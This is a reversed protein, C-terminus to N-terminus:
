YIATIKTKNSICLDSPCDFILTDCTYSKAIIDNAIVKFVGATNLTENLIYILSITFIREQITIEYDTQTQDMLLPLNYVKMSDKYILSAGNNLISIKDVQLLGSNIIKIIDNYANVLSDLKPLKTEVSILEVNLEEIMRSAIDLSDKYETNGNQISDNIRAVEHELSDIKKNLEQSISEYYQITVSTDSIAADLTAISDQNIFTVAVTPEYLLPEGCEHCPDCSFAVISWFIFVLGSNKM